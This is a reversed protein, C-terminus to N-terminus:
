GRGIALAQFTQPAASRVWFQAVEIALDVGTGNNVNLGNGAGAARAKETLFLEIAATGTNHFLLRNTTNPLEYATSIAGAAPTTGNVHHPKGRRIWESM